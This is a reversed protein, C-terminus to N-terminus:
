RTRYEDPIADIPRIRVARFYVEAGETQLSIQGSRLPGCPRGLPRIRHLHEAVRVLHKRGARHPM